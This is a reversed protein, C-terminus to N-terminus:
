KGLRQDLLKRIEVLAEDTLDGDEVLHAVLAAPAGDFLKNSLNDLSRSQYADRSLAPRYVLTRGRKESSVFSKNFERGDPTVYFYRVLGSGIFFLEQLDDGAAFVLEGAQRKVVRANKTVQDASSASLGHEDTLKLHFTKLIEMNRLVGDSM